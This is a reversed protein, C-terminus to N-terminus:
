RLGRECGRLWIRDKAIGQEVLLAQVNKVREQAVLDCKNLVIYFEREDVAKRSGQESVLLLALKAEDMLANCSTAFIKEGLQWRFCVEELTKGLADLGCVAIVLDSDALLVPEHAAPVKCPMRKAGDAEIFAIDCAALVQELLAESPRTLKGSGQEVEGIVAYLGRQWLQEVECLNRAYVCVQPTWIHTTTLCAVKKGLRACQEALEYMLTTKGGGGVLSVIHKSKDKLFSWPCVNM